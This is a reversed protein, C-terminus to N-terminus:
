PVSWCLLADHSTSLCGLLHCVINQSRSEEREANERRCINLTAFDISYLARLM